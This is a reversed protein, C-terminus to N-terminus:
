VGPIKFWEASTRLLWTILVKVCHGFVRNVRMRGANDFTLLIDFCKDITAQGWDICQLHRTQTRGESRKTWKNTQYTLRNVGAKAEDLHSIFSWCRASERGALNCARGSQGAPIGNRNATM